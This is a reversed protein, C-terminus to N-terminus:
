EAISRGLWVCLIGAVVSAAVYIAAIVWEGRQGLTLAEASFTSFTTFGGCFGTVLLLSHNATLMKSHELWGFLLGILFCGLANVIFTAMPFSGHWHNITLRSVIYRCATGVFGGSGAILIEKILM